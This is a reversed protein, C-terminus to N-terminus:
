RVPTFYHLSTSFVNSACGGVCDSGWRAAALVTATWGEVSAIDLDAGAGLLIETLPVHGAEAVYMLATHGGVRGAGWGGGGGRRAGVGAGARGEATAGASGAGGAGSGEGAGQGAERRGEGGGSHPPRAAVAAAKATRRRCHHHHSRLIIRSWWRRLRSAPLSAASGRSGASRHGSSGCGTSSKRWRRRRRSAGSSCSSSGGGHRAWGVASGAAAVAAAASPAAMRRRRRRRVPSRPGRCPAALRAPAVARSTRGRRSGGWCGTSLWLPCSGRPHPPRTGDSWSLQGGGVRRPATRQCIQRWRRPPGEGEPQRIAGAEVEAAAAQRGAGAQRHRAVAPGEAGGYV